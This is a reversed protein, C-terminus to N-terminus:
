DLTVGTVGKFAAYQERMHQVSAQEEDRLSAAENDLKKMEEPVTKMESFIGTLDGNEKAMTKLLRLQIDYTSTYGKRLAELTHEIKGASNAIDVAQRRYNQNSIANANQTMALFRENLKGNREDFDDVFTASKGNYFQIAEKAANARSSNSAKWDFAVSVSKRYQTLNDQDSRESQDLAIAWMVVESDAVAKSFSVYSAAFSTTSPRDRQYTCGVTSLLFSLTLTRFIGIKM